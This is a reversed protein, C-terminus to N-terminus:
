HYPQIATEAAATPYVIQAKGNIVQSAFFPAETLSGDSAFSLTAPSPFINGTTQSLSVSKLATVIDAPSSSKAAEMAQAIFEVCVYGFMSQANPIKHFKAQYQNFFTKFSAPVTPTTPTLDGLVLSGNAQSKLQGVMDAADSGGAIFMKSKLTFKTAFLKALALGDGPYGIDFVIDASSSALRAAVSSFDTTSLPYGFQQVVKFGATKNIKNFANLFDQGYSTASYAVAVTPDSIGLKSEAAKIVDVWGQSFQTSDKAVQFVTNYGRQHIEDATGGADLWAVGARQTVNIGALVTDSIEGGFVAAVKAAVAATAQTTGDDPNSATDFKKIALQAGGLSKIGGAANIQDVAIQAGQNEPIGYASAAGSFDTVEGLSITSAPATSTAGGSSGSDGSGGSGGSGSGGGSSSCAAVVAVATISAVVWLGRYTRTSREM